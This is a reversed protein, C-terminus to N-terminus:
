LARRSPSASRACFNVAWHTSRFNRFRTTKLAATEETAREVELAASQVERNGKLALVAADDITLVPASQASAITAAALLGAVAIKAAM